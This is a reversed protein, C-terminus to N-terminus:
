TVFSSDFSAKVLQQHHAHTARSKEREEELKLIQLKRVQMSSTPTEEIFQALALSPIVVNKLLVAEKGYVLNFPSTCISAKQTIRDAWLSFVLPKYWNKQGQDFTQKIIRIRNKNKSEALGNGQPYYNASYMLNFGRKLSFKIIVNGSFYSANDFMLASPSGFRTIIFQDIFEIINESNAVKLPIEEVWKTFYDTALLIYKHQKSSHPIIEGIVDGFHGGARGNHLEQLVKEVESKELCRPLVYDYNIRFLVDDVIQYKKANLILARKKTYNLQTPAYGNELYFIIDVYRSETNNLSVEYIKVDVGAHQLESPNSAGALM